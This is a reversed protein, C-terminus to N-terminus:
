NGFFMNFLATIIGGIFSILTGIFWKYNGDKYTQLKLDQEKMSEKLDEVEQRVHKDREALISVEKSHSTIDSQMSDLKSFLLEFKHNIDKVSEQFMDQMYDIKHDVSELRAEVVEQLGSVKAELVAVKVDTNDAM